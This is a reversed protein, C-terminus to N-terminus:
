LEDMRDPDGHDAVFRQRWAETEADRQVELAIRSPDVRPRHDLDMLAAVADVAGQLDELADEYVLRLPAIGNRAFYVEWRADLSATFKLARLIAGGDYDAEGLADLTSRWQETAEARVRSIAQGLLDRRRWHVFRLNPLHRTWRIQHGMQFLVAPFIKVGYIGNPTAGETLVRGIQELRGAPYDPGFLRQQFRTNFADAPRGLADTSGLAKAFWSSGSRAAGCIAYGAWAAVSGDPTAVM